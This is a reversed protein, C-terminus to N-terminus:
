LSNVTPWHTHTHTHIEKKKKAKDRERVILTINTKIDDVYFIAHEDAILLIIM